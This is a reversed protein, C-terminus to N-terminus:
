DAMIRRASSCHAFSVNAADLQYCAACSLLKSLSSAPSKSSFPMGLLIQDCSSSHELEWLISMVTRRLSETRPADRPPVESAPGSPNSSICFAAITERYAERSSQSNEQLVLGDQNSEIDVIALDRRRVHQLLKENISATLTGDKDTMTSSPPIGAQPCLVVEPLM